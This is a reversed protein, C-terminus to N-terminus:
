GAARRRSRRCRGARSRGAARRASASGGPPAREGPSSGASPWCRRSRATTPSTSRRSGSSRPGPPPAPRSPMPPTSREGVARQPATRGSATTPRTREHPRERAGRARRPRRDRGPQADIWGASRGAPPSGSSRRGAPMRVEAAADLVPQPDKGTWRLRVLEVLHAHIAPPVALQAPGRRLSAALGFLCLLTIPAGLAGLVIPTALSPVTAHDSGHIRVDITKGVDGRDAGEVPGVVVDEDATWVGRCHIGNGYKGARGECGTVKATGAVGSHQDGYVSFGGYTVALGVILLVVLAWPPRRVAILDEEGARRSARRSTRCRRTSPRGRRTWAARRGPRARAADLLPELSQPEDDIAAWPDGRSPWAGPVRRSRSSTPTSRRRARGLAFPTSVQRAPARRARVLRRVGDQAAREPQLRRLRARRAGGEVVRRHDPRAPPARARPRRRGGGVAGRLSDWGRSSGCTSTSAATAPRRRSAPSASSTSCRRAGRRGGRAGRRLRRGPQPDLDIRLEDAHEPDAARYPWVHFGLCGLNVAWLSTRSTPSWSRTAVDHREAHEVITTELWDPASTPCASRSSRRARRRREPLAAHAGAARGDRADAARRRALYYRVLDLKTEGASRSSSRTRAPSRSRAGTSRSCTSTPWLRVTGVAARRRHRHALAVLRHLRDAHADGALKWGSREIAGVFELSCLM